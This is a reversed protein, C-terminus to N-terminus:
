LVFCFCTFAFRQHFLPYSGTIIQLVFDDRFERSPMNSIGKDLIYFGTVLDLICIWIDSSAANPLGNNYSTGESTKM